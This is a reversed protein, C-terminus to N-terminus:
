KKGAARALSDAYSEKGEIFYSGRKLLFRSKENGAASPNCNAIVVYVRKNGRTNFELESLPNAAPVLWEAHNEDLIGPCIHGQLIEHSLRVKVTTKPSLVIAPSTIQYGFQSDNGDVRWSGDVTAAAKVSRDPMWETWPPLPLYLSEQRETQHDSTGELRYVEVSEISDAVSDFQSVYVIGGAHRHFLFAEADGRFYPSVDFDPGLETITQRVDLQSTVVLMRGRSVGRASNLHIRLLYNGPPLELSVTHDADFQNPNEGYGIGLRLPRAAQVKGVAVPTLRRIWQWDSPSYYSVVVPCLSRTLEDVSANREDRMPTPTEREYVRTVGYPAGVVMSVLRYRFSPFLNEFGDLSSTRERLVSMAHDRNEPYGWILVDPAISPRDAEGVRRALTLADVFQVLQLRDPTEIGYMVTGWATAKLPIASLIEHAYASISVWRHAVERNATGADVRSLGASWAFVVACGATLIFAATKMRTFRLKIFTLLAYVISGGLWITVTQCLIGYGLHYNPYKGLSLVYSWWIVLPPVVYTAVLGRATPKFRFALVVIILGVVAVSTVVSIDRVNGFSSRLHISLVEWYGSAGHATQSAAAVFTRYSMLLRLHDSVRFGSPAYFCILAAIGGGALWALSLLFQRRRAAPAVEPDQKLMHAILLTCVAAPVVSWAILHSFAAAAAAYGALGWHACSGKRIALGASVLFLLAFFSVMIDPRVMPWQYADFRYLTLISVFSATLVGEERRFWWYSGGLIALIVILHIARLVTLSYGFLWILLAGFYFYWPGYNLLGHNRLNPVNSAPAQVPSAPFGYGNGSALSYSINALGDDLALYPYSDIHGFFAHVVMLAYLVVIGVVFGCSVQRVRMALDKKM